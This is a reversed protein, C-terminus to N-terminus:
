NMSFSNLARQGPFLVMKDIITLLIEVHSITPIAKDLSSTKKDQAVLTRCADFIITPVQGMKPQTRLATAIEQSSTMPLNNEILFYDPKFIQVVQLAQSCDRAHIFVYRTGYVVVESFTLNELNNNQVVLIFSILSVGGRFLMDIGWM